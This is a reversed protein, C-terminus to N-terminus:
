RTPTLSIQLTPTLTPLPVLAPNISTVTLDRYNVTLPPAGAARAFVGTVGSSFVPDHVRFQEAGEIYFRMEEGYMWVAAHIVTQAGPRIQLSTVWDQLVVFYSNQLREVRTQGDCTMLWRYGSWQDVARLLLGFSDGTRCLSPNITIELYFDDLLPSRRLSTLYGKDEAIAITLENKGYAISGANVRTTDWASTDSFDDEVVPTSLGLEPTLVATPAQSPKPTPTATSPFWDITATQTPVPTATALDEPSAPQSTPACASLGVVGM